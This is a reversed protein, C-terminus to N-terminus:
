GLLNDLYRRVRSKYEVPAFRRMTRRFEIALADYSIREKFTRFNLQNHRVAKREFAALSIRNQSAIEELGESAIVDIIHSGLARYSEFQAESFWQDVIVEQPFSQSGRGYNVVDRPEEGIMSAKIYILTGDFDEDQLVAQVPNPVAERIPGSQPEVSQCEASTPERDVCSYRIRGIACYKGSLDQSPTTISLERIDIQVGLDVRIQRISQALSDFSYGADTSADCVVIFRCRRLVMEYLGLNEFHGGDSLYVYSAKDDTNGFAENVIPWVSLLPSASEFPKGRRRGGFLRQLRGVSWELPHIEDGCSGPNGLWWGFRANFLTMLFRVVPSTMMYGMNPSVFAGSIAVATGLSIGADDGGYAVSRRYGLWYSGAHLPSVTFSEAKRDQWALKDGGALNLAINLVPFLKRRPEVVTGRYADETKLYKPMELGPPQPRLQSMFLDDDTDFNTFPHPNRDRHSAGLYARIIRDRWMYHLSFKNTDILLGTVIGVAGVLVITVVILWFSTYIVFAPHDSPPIRQGNPNHPSAVATLLWNTGLALLIILFCLFVPGLINTLWGLLRGASGTQRAERGSAPTKGSFGGLLTVVGSVVGAGVTLVQGLSKLSEKNWGKDHRLTDLAHGLLLIISPGFLVMLHIGAWGVIVILFWAGARAWWEMEEDRTLTSTLGAMLACGIMSVSLMVPVSFTAYLRQHDAPQPFIKMAAVYFLAGVVMQAVVILLTALFFMAVRKWLQKLLDGASQLFGKHETSSLAARFGHLFRYAGTVIWPIAILFIAFLFFEFWSYEKSLNGDPQRDVGVWYVAFAAASVVAPLLCARLFSKDRSKCRNPNAIRRDKQPISILIGACSLSIWHAIVGVGFVLDQISISWGRWSLHANALSESFMTKAVIAMWARPLLLGAVLFPVFVLWTLFLNRLATAILTWTDVSLLGPRPSLYNSFIRLHNIPDPEPEVASQPRERLANIVKKTGQRHIWATLWGGIFGGGSVTSLYDFQDLMGHRALGQLIGLNFTASRIGGGSLCLASRLSRAYAWGAKKLDSYGSGVDSHIDSSGDAGSYPEVWGNRLPLTGTASAGASNLVSIFALLEAKDCRKEKERDVQSDQADGQESKGSALKQGARYDDLTGRLEALVLREVMEKREEKPKFCFYEELRREYKATLQNKTEESEDRQEKALLAFFKRGLGGNCNEENKEREVEAKKQECAKRMDDGEQRLADFPDTEGAPREGKDKRAPRHTEYEELLMECFLLRSTDDSQTKINSGSTIEPESRKDTRSM